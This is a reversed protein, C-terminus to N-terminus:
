DSSEARAKELKPELKDEVLQAITSPDPKQKDPMDKYAFRSPDGWTTEQAPVVPHTGEPYAPVDGRSRVTPDSVKDAAKETPSKAM